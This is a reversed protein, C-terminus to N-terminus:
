FEKVESEFIEFHRGVRDIVHRFSKKSHFSEEQTM